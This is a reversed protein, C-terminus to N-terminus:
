ERAGKLRCIPVLVFGSEVWRHPPCVINNAILVDLMGENESWNKVAIEDPALGDVYTTCTAYPFGDEDVIQIRKGISVKGTVEKGWAKFTIEKM